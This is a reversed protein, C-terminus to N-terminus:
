ILNTSRYKTRLTEFSSNSLENELWVSLNELPLNSFPSFNYQNGLTKNYSRRGFAHYVKPFNGVSVTQFVQMIANEDTGMEKMADYLKEAATKANFVVANGSSGPSGPIFNNGTPDEGYGGGNDSKKILLYGLLVAAAVGIGIKLNKNDQKTM